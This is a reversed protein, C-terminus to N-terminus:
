AQVAMGRNQPALQTQTSVPIRPLVGSSLVFLAASPLAFLFDYDFNSFLFTGEITAAALLLCTFFAAKRRGNLPLDIGTNLVLLM